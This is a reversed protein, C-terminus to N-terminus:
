QYQRPEGTYTTNPPMVGLQFKPRLDTAVCMHLRAMMHTLNLSPVFISNIDNHIIVFGTDLPSIDFHTVFVYPVIITSASCSSHQM